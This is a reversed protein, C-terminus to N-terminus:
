LTEYKLKPAQLKKPPALRVLWGTAVPSIEYICMYLMDVGIELSISNTFL